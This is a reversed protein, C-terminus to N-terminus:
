WTQNLNHWMEMIERRRRKKMIDPVAVKLQTLFFESQAKVVTWDALPGVREAVLESREQVAHASGKAGIGRLSWSM